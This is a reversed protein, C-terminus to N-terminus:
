VSPGGADPNATIRREVGDLLCALGLAFYQDLPAREVRGSRLYAADLFVSGAVFRGVVRMVTRSDEESLEARQLAVVLEQRSEVLPQVESAGIVIAVVHHHALLTARLSTAWAEAVERWPADEPMDVDALVRDALGRLLAAKDPVHNYLSMAGTGLEAAIRRMSLSEIGERQSLALAVEIIRDRSLSGPVLRERTVGCLILAFL